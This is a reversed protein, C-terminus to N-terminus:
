KKNYQSNLMKIYNYEKSGPFFGFKSADEVKIPRGKIIKDKLSENFRYMPTGPARGTILTYGDLSAWAPIGVIASNNTNKNILTKTNNNSNSNESNYRNMTEESKKGWIGDVEIDYGANKLTEQKKANDYEPTGKLFVTNHPTKYIPMYRYSEASLASKEFGIPFIGTKKTFDVSKKIENYIDNSIEKEKKEIDKYSGNDYVEKAEEVTDWLSYQTKIDNDLKRLKKTLNSGVLSDSYAQYEKNSKDDIFKYGNTRKNATFENPKLIWNGNVNRPLWQYLYQEDTDETTM